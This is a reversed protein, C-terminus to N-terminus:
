KRASEETRSLRGAVSRGGIVSNRRGIEIDILLRNLLRIITLM